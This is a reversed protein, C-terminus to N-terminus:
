ALDGNSFGKQDFRCRCRFRGTIFDGAFDDGPNGNRVAISLVISALPKVFFNHYIVPRLATWFFYFRDVFRFRSRSTVNNDQSRM